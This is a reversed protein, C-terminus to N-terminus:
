EADKRREIYDQIQTHTILRSGGVKISRLDGSNLLRYISARSCRMWNAVESIKYMKDLAQTEM